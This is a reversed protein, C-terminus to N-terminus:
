TTSLPGGNGRQEGAPRALPLNRFYFQTLDDWLLRETALDGPTEFGLHRVLDMRYLDFATRIQDAYGIAVQLASGHSLGAVVWALLSVAVLLWSERTVILTTPAVVGFVTALTRLLLLSELATQAEVLTGVAATPLVHRLRPWIVVSDIAYREHPYIEAARLINGLRTPMLADGRTPPPFTRALTLQLGNADHDRGATRSGAEARILRDWRKRQIDIARARSRRAVSWRPWYGEYLRTLVPHFSSAVHAATALLLLAGALLLVQTSGPLGAFAALTRRARGTAAFYLATAAVVALVLPFFTGVIFRRSFISQLSALGADIM